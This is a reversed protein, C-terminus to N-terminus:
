IKRCPNTPPTINQSDDSSNLVRSSLKEAIKSWGSGASRQSWGSALPSTNLSWERRSNKVPSSCANPTALNTACTKSRSATALRERLRGALRHDQIRLREALAEDAAGTFDHIKGRVSKCWHSDGHPTLPFDNHPKRSGFRATSHVM